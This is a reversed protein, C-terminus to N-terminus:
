SGHAESDLGCGMSLGELISIEGLRGQDGFGVRWGSRTFSLM